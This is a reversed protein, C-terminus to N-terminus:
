VGGDGEALVRRVATEAARELLVELEPDSLVWTRSESGEYAASLDALEVGLANALLRLTASDPVTGSSWWSTLTNPRIGAKRALGSVSRTDRIPLRSELYARLARGRAKAEDREM